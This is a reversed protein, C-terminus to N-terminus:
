RISPVCLDTLRSEECFSFMLYTIMLGGEECNGQITSVLLVLSIQGRIVSFSRGSWDFAMFVNLLAGKGWLINM